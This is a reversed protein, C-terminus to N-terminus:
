LADCVRAVLHLIRQLTHPVKLMNRKLVLCPVRWSIMDCELGSYCHWNDQFRHSHMMQAILPGAAGQCECVGQFNDARGLGLKLLGKAEREQVVDKFSERSFYCSSHSCAWQMAAAIYHMLVFCPYKGLLCSRKDHLCWSRFMARLAINMRSQNWVKSGHSAFCRGTWLSAARRWCWADNSETCNNCCRNGTDVQLTELTCRIVCWARWVLQIEFMALLGFKSACSPCIWYAELRKRFQLLISLARCPKVLLIHDNEFVPTLLPGITLSFRCSQTWCCSHSM